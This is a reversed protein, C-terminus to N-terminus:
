SYDDYNVEPFMINFGKETKERVLKSLPSSFHYYYRTSELTVHGMTKSLYVLKDFQEYVTGSWSNINEIAYNHRLDHPVSHDNSVEKWIRRYNDLLWCYEHPMSDNYGPFFYLRDPYYHDIEKDYESVLELLSDHLVTFHQIGKKSKEFSVIGDDLNINSRKLLRAEFPRAGTSYMFRFLVPITLTYNIAKQINHNSPRKLTDCAAFFYSLEEFTYFHPVYTCPMSDPIRPIDVNTLGREHMYQLLGVVPYVRARCSNAIETEKRNFWLDVIEQNLPEGMELNENCFRDFAGINACRSKSWLGSADCYLMYKEISPALISQFQYKSKM